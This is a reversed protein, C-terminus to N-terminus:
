RSYPYENIWHFGRKVLAYDSILKRKFSVSISDSKYQGTVFFTSDSLQRYHLNYTIATDSYPSLSITQSSTDITTEYYDSKDNAFVIKSFNDEIFLKNWRLTDITQPPLTDNNVLFQQTLYAGNLNHNAKENAYNLEEIITFTPIGIIILSKLLIRGYRAWKNPLDLQTVILTSPKNLIFFNFLNTLNPSFIFFSILALHTSFLKVPVDYAFNMIAVNTMVLLSVLSGVVTTRRFFLLVGGSIECLGIFLTYPKSYGMFTWLLGMPSSSGYTQEMRIISPFPFQGDYVKALGYSILILGVYYRAYTTIFDHLKEYSRRFTFVFISTSILISIIVTTLLKVYDFTTDGSGTMEIKELTELRLVNQGFWLTLFDTAKDYYTLLDGIVPIDTLPFPFMYFFLYTLIFLLVFKKIYTWFCHGNTTQETMTFTDILIVALPERMQSAPSKQGFHMQSDLYLVFGSDRM